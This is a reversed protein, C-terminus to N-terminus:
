NEPMEYILSSINAYNFTIGDKTQNLLGQPYLMKQIEDLIQLARERTKYHGFEEGDCFINGGAISLAIENIKKLKTKRQNRIWLEM